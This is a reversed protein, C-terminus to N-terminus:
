GQRLRIAAAGPTLAKVVGRVFREAVGSSEQNKGHGTNPNSRWATTPSCATRKELGIEM